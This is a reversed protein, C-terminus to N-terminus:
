LLFCNVLVGRGESGSVFLLYDLSVFTVLVFSGFTLNRILFFFPRVNYKYIILYDYANLFVHRMPSALTM